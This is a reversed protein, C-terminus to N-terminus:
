PQGGAAAALPSSRAPRANALAEWLAPGEFRRDIRRGDLFFTPTGTVGLRRALEVDAAVARRVAEGNMEGEFREGDLGIRQALGRLAAPTLEGPYSLLAGHMLEFAAAGGQLRAAEAAWAVECARPHLQGKVAGNCDECLPYHRIVVDLREGFAKRANEVVEAAGCGCNPCEYDMFVMLRSRQEDFTEGPRAPSEHVPQAFHAQVLFTQDERLENVLRKYPLLKRWQAGLALHEARYVWLGAVAVVAATLAVVAPRSAWAQPHARPEFDMFAVDAEARKARRLLRWVGAALLLNVSHVALCTACPAARGPIMLGVLVVSVLFGCLATAAPILRWYRPIGRPGGAVTFWVGLAVFYALGVFALPVKLDPGPVPVHFEAWRDRDAASCDMGVKAGAECLRGLLGTAEHQGWLADHAKVMEGSIWAGAGCLLVVVLLLWRESGPLRNM